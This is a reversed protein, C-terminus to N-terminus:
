GLSPVVYLQLAHMGDATCRAVGSKHKAFIEQVSWIEVEDVEEFQPVVPKDWEVEFAAGWVQLQWAVSHLVAVQTHCVTARPVPLTFRVKNTANTFPFTFLPKLPAAGAPIGMEEELEREASLEYSEGAAVVGGAVPDYLGAVLLM